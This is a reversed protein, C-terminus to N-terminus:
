KGEGKWSLNRPLDLNELYRQAPTPTRRLVWKEIEIMLFVFSSLGLSTGLDALSLAQTGFVFQLPQFYVVAIQLAFTLFCMTLLLPNSAIGISFLSDRNSRVGLAQGIQLFSLTTFTMTQWQSDGSQWYWYGVGLAVLGILPGLWIIHQGMGRAFISESPQYPPRQMVSSEPKEVGLGLGLLGDTLLNLWLLQLPLLTLPMGVLPGTLVVLIKGINGAISYKIYKRINDYIVRGEEVAAVITAFNDDLLVMGAAEKTVDTGTVGMAVGINAKKLAPADNVGDGTMAVIHGRDQLAKVIRLKHEASVRAYVSVEDVMQRLDEASMQDLDHGTLARGHDMIGLARAINTATLPHDGTIMVPRIGATKCTQVANKVAIRPPDIMGVLGVFILERELQEPILRLPVTALPRAAIGLVRMGNRALEDNANTLQRSLEATLPTVRGEVVAYSSRQVLGDVAGKVFAVYPESLEADAHCIIGLGPYALVSPSSVQHVTTMRKRESDFPLESIRPLDTDLKKKWLGARAAAVALAVETPDGLAQQEGEEGEPRVVADNCLAMGTLLLSLARDSTIPRITESEGQALTPSSGRGLHDSFDFRHGAVDIVTVTMRNETLTGTKDSCIVTVSGLTEVALLKRILAQRKLMRQAGLALTVTVIAPLGEPVAAVAVSVATLLMLTLGEGRMVGLGFIVASVALALAGLTKGLQDLRLQLPTYKSPVDQLIEAIRGLETRMGTEVVLALGRGAVVVTGMFVMNHRDCLARHDLELTSVDKEVPVSEGTLTAEDARLNFCELLRCDAPVVNGAELMLIDGPVLLRASIERVEGNRCLRVVPVSLKKLAAMARDARYDQIFGLTAFLVVVAIIVIADKYDSVIASLAAAAILILVLVSTLQEWLILWPGRREAETLENPGYTALRRAAEEQNLGRDADAKLLQLAATSDINSWDSV